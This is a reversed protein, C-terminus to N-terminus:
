ISSGRGVGVSAGGANSSLFFSSAPLAVSSGRKRHRNIQMLEFRRSAYALARRCLGSRVSSKMAENYSFGALRRPVGQLAFCSSTILLLLCLHGSDRPRDGMLDPM